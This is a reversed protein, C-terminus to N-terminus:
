EMISGLSFMPMYMAVLIIAVLVGVSLILLPELITGIRRTSYKLEDSLIDGMRRLVMPLRNTEEGVRILALLKQEYLQPFNKIAAAFSYGQHLMKIISDFSIRYPYFAVADRLMGIGVLLPVGSSTLLCLLRCFHTEYNKRIIAGVIPLHLLLNSTWLRVEKRNRNIHYILYIGGSIFTTAIIYSPFHKSFSVVWQTLVPLERGMRSYVEEFMPVVILLMFIVVIIATCLVIFPYSIASSIMRRQAVKNRFYESLFSLAETLRGTEDGINIVGWELPEFVKNHAMAGALTRGCVIENYISEVLFRIRRDNACEALLQFANSFDLGATLLAHLETYFAEKASDSLRNEKM